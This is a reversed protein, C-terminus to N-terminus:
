IEDKGEVQIRGSSTVAWHPASLDGLLMEDDPLCIDPDGSPDLASRLTWWAASRVNAMGFERTSDKLKTGRSANFALVRAGMERLRDVVGSGIGIVDVVATCSPDADLIGKVRGTTQMTDERVSWIPLADHLSLPCIM